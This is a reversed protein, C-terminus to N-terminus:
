INVLRYTGIDNSKIKLFMPNGIWYYISGKKM